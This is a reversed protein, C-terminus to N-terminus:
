AKPESGGWLSRRARHCAGAYDASGGQLIALLYLMRTLKMYAAVNKTRSMPTVQITFALLFGYKLFHIGMVKMIAPM